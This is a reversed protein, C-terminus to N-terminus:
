PQGEGTGHDGAPMRAWRVLRQLPLMGDWPAEFFNMTGLPVCRAVGARAGALSVAMRLGDDGVALGLTQIKPSLRTIQAALDPVCRVFLCRGQV